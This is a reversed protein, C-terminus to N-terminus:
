RNGNDRKIKEYMCGACDDMDFDINNMTGCTKCKKLM